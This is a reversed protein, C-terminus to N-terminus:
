AGEIRANHTPFDTCTKLIIHASKLANHDTLTKQLCVFLAFLPSTKPLCVFHLLNKLAFSNHPNKKDLRSTWGIANLPEESGGAAVKGPDQTVGAKQQM